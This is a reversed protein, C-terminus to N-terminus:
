KDGWLEEVGGNEGMTFKCIPQGPQVFWVENEPVSDDCEIILGFPNNNPPLAIRKELRHKALTISKVWM